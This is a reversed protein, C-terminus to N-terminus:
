PHLSFKGVIPFLKEKNGLIYGCTIEKRYLTVQDGSDTRPATDVSTPILAAIERNVRYPYTPDSVLGVAFEERAASEAEYLQGMNVSLVLVTGFGQETQKTWEKVDFRDGYFHVVENAAHSAQAMAKGANMSPLDNRMLIYLIQDSM